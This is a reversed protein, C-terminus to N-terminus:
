HGGSLPRRGQSLLFLWAYYGGVLISGTFRVFTALLDGDVVALATLYAGALVAVAMGTVTMLTAFSM